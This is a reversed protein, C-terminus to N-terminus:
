ALVGGPDLQARVREVLALEVPDRSDPVPDRVHAVGASLRVVAEDLGALTSELEGPAFLLRGRAWGQRGEAEEWISGFDEEGGALQQAAEFQEDVAARSGEILVAVWGPWVVDLASLELPAHLLKRAVAAAEAASRVQVGLTRSAEPRPHLRLAVRAILGLQGESGCFLKGLDYGAVNKVVKGGSSAVTGDALVVTVGIVLDRATGYRHRRPGSLNAALCAGITPNGPPDLALMQGHEALRENLDRVRVGAEVICTLDGAEHELVQDLRRTSIEVEGGPREISVREGCEAAGALAEAAEHVSWIESVSPL